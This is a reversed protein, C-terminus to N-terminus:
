ADHGFVRGWALPGAATGREPHWIRKPLEPNIRIAEQEQGRREVVPDLARLEADPFGPHCMVIHGAATMRMAGALEIEYMRDTDFSSFGSFGNNTPFGLRRAQFKFGVSLAAIGFAKAMEGGRGCISFMRDCPDRLLPKPGPFRAGLAALLGHRVGPLVHVHQHGDIHDPPFGAALEFAALQRTVEAAIEHPDIERKLARKVLEGVAPLVGDPALKPMPGLPIGLTLNLHLGIAIKGRLAELRRADEAWRPLTVIASTASIREALALEYIGQTVGAAIGYDDANLIVPGPRLKLVPLVLTPRM